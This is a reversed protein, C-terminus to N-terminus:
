RIGYQRPHETITYGRVKVTKGSPLLRKHERVEHEAVTVVNPEFHRKVVTLKPKGMKRARQAKYAAENADIEKAVAKAATRRGRPKTAASKRKAAGRAAAKRFQLPTFRGTSPGEEDRGIACWWGDALNIVFQVQKKM